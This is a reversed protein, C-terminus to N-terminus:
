TAPGPVDWVPLPHAETNLVYKSLPLLSEDDSFLLYFYKLTEALFFSEMKDQPQPDSASSVDGISTYGGGDVKCHTEFAQLVASAAIFHVYM